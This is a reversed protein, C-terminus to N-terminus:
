SVIRTWKKYNQLSEKNLFCEFPFEAILLCEFPVWLASSPCKFPVQASLANPCKLVPASSASLCKLLVQVISCELYNPVQAGLCKPVQTSSPCKPVWASPCKPVRPVQPLKNLMSLGTICYVMSYLFSFLDKFKKSILIVLVMLSLYSDLNCWLFAIVLM